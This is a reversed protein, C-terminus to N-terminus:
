VKDLVAEAACREAKKKSDAAGTGVYEFDKIICDVRWREGHKNIEHDVVVYSPVEYGHSVAWEQLRSKAHKQLKVSRDALPVIHRDVFAQVASTGGDLSMAGIVAELADACVKSSKHRNALVSEGLLMYRDIGLNVALQALQTNSVLRAKHETLEGVTAQKHSRYLTASVVYGLAADGLFELRENDEECASAHVLAQELLHPFQFQYGIAEQLLSLDESRM